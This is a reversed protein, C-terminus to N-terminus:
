STALGTAVRVADLTAQAVPRAKAAAAALMADLQEPANMLESYRARLPELLEVLAGALEQKAAVNSIGGACYRSVFDTAFSGGVVQAYQCLVEDAPKPDNVGLSSTVLRKVKDTIEENSDTIAITNNYSKSMKRGDTGPLNPVEVPFAEPMTFVPGYHSHFHEVIDRTIEVHQLQDKGVPVVSAQYALIDAAMLVPYSLLGWTAHRGNALSDKYAHARELIGLGFQAGIITALEGHVGVASQRFLITRETDIGAAIYTAALSRVKDRMESPVVGANLVHMDAIFMFMHDYEHQLRVMPLVASALNGIHLSGSPRLGTIATRSM